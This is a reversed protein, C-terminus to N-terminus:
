KKEEGALSRLRALEAEMEENKLKNAKAVRQRRMADYALFALVPIGIFIIMGLPSQLFMAFDGVKPIRSNVIGIVQEEEVPEADQTNNADGKTIFTREGSENQTVEM